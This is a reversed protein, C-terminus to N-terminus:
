KPQIYVANSATALGVKSDLTVITNGNDVYFYTSSDGTSEHGYYSTSALVNGMTNTYYNVGTTLGKLSSSSVTGSVAIDAVGNTISTVIGFPLPCIEM